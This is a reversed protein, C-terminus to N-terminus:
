QAEIKEVQKEIWKIHAKFSKVITKNTMTELRNSEEIRM